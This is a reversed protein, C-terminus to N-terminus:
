AVKTWLDSHWSTGYVTFPHIGYKTCIRDAEFVTLGSVRWTEIGRRYSEVFEPPLSAILPEISLRRMNRKRKFNRQSVANKCPECRCKYKDYTNTTGHKAMSIDIKPRPRTREM